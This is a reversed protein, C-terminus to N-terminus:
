LWHLLPHLHLLHLCVEFNQNTLFKCFRLKPLSTGVNKVIIAFYGRTSKLHFDIAFQYLFIYHVQQLLNNLM